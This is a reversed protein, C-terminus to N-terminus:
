RILLESAIAAYAAPLADLDVDEGGASVDEEDHLEAYLLTELWAEAPAKAVEFPEPASPPAARVVLLLALAAAVLGAGLAPLSFVRLRRALRADLAADFAARQGATLPEPAFGERMRAVMRADDRDLAPGDPDHPIM